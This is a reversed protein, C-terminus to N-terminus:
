KAEAWTPGFGVDVKFPIDWGLDDKSRSEMIQKCITGWEDVYSEKVDGVISDHVTIVIASKKWDIEKALLIVSKLTLDGATSQPKFNVAERVAANFNQRTLLRFRRVRGWPSCVRGTRMEAIVDKKWERVGGFYQWWWDIFSQAQHEPIDNKEQFTAAGQGYAVGFNMIKAYVRQEDTFDAGYFREAVISHLDLDERYVRNLESDGSFQAICRLEAQSYDAQVIFRGPSALFLKRIDPLGAKTRTINQLNPNRSSTRGSTTGHLLIDTFLRYEPDLLAREILAIIYTDAQKTLERFRDVEKAFNRVTQYGDIGKTLGAGLSSGLKTTFRGAVIENLASEDTSRDKGPRSRMEHTLKWDDYFLASMQKTSRPNSVKDESLLRIRNVKAEMEPAVEDEMVDAAARVDYRFGALEIKTCTEVGPILLERYPRETGEDRIRESLLEFLQFTGAADWGAYRYLEDYDTVVGTKKFKKVSEPEYNPWGFEESLLYELKHYGGHQKDTQGTREDCAYSMLMTDEDVRASVGLTRLIKIDFKGNHYIFELGGDKFRKDLEGLIDSDKDLRCEREGIVTANGGSTAFQLTVVSARHTLGGRTETDIAVYGKRLSRIYEVADRDNEIVEVIPLTPEPIPNFARRFDKQLNPFTSDDRLVLAPNNTAVYTTGGRDIRFGRHRDIAGRGILLAVAESGAAVVLNVGSLEEHLRPACAKIAEGPIPGEDPACLVVNTLLVEKREIGQEKLLHNLVDGSDGTFPVGTQAEKWGPSRAVVAAVPNDPILSPACPKAKLPCVECMAAPHKRVPLAITAM